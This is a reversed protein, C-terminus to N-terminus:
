LADGDDSPSHLFEEIESAPMGSRKLWEIGQSLNAHCGYGTCFMKGILQQMQRDGAMALELAELFWQRTLQAVIERLPGKELTEVM